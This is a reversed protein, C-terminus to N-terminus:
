TSRIGRMQQLHIRIMDLSLLTGGEVQVVTRALTQLRSLHYTREVMYRHILTLITGLHQFPSCVIIKAVIHMQILYSFNDLYETYCVAM